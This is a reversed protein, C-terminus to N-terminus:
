ASSPMRSLTADRPSPSTYLLCGHPGDAWFDDSMDSYVGSYSSGAPDETTAKFSWESGSAFDTSPADGAQWQTGSTQCGALGLLAASGILLRLRFTHSGFMSAGQFHM